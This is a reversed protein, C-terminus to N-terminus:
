QSAKLGARYAEVDGLYRDKTEDSIYDMMAVDVHTVRNLGAFQAHRCSICLRAVFTETQVKIQRLAIGFNTGTLSPKTYRQAPTQHLRGM